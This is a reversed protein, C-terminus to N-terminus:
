PSYLLLYSGMTNSISVVTDYSLKYDIYIDNNSYALHILISTQLTRRIYSGSTEM